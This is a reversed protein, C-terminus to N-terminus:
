KIVSQKCPLYLGDIVYCVLVDTTSEEIVKIQFNYLNSEKERWIWCLIKMQKQFHWFNYIPPKHLDSTHVLM